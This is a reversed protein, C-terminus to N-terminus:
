VNTASPLIFGMTKVIMTLLTISAIRAQASTNPSSPAGRSPANPAPRAVVSTRQHMTPNSSPRAQLLRPGRRAARTWASSHAGIRRMISSPRGIARWYSSSNPTNAVTASMM